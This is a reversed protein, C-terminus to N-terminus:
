DGLGRARCLSLLRGAAFEAAHRQIFALNGAELAVTFRAYPIHSDDSSVFM